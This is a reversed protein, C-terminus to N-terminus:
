FTRLQPYNVWLVAGIVVIVALLTFVFHAILSRRSSFGFLQILQWFAYFVIFSILSNEFFSFPWFILLSNIQAILFGLVLWHIISDRDVALRDLRRAWLGAAPISIFVFFTVAVVLPNNIDLASLWYNALLLIFFPTGILPYHMQRLAASLGIILSALVLGLQTAPQPISDWVVATVFFPVIWFFASFLWPRLSRM